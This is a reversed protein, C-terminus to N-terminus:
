QQKEGLYHKRSLGRMKKTHEATADDQTGLGKSVQEAKKMRKIMEFTPEFVNDFISAVREQKDTKTLKKFEALQNKQSETLLDLNAQIAFFEGVLDVKIANAKEMENSYVEKGAQTLIGDITKPLLAANTKAWEVVSMTFKLASSIDQTEKSKKEKEEQALRAKEALTKEDETKTKDLPPAHQKGELKELRSLLDSNQKKLDEIEKNPEAKNNGGAGGAAGGGGNGEGAKDRLMKLKNGFFLSFGNM